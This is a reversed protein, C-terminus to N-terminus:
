TSNHFCLLIIQPGGSYRAERHGIKYLFFLIISLLLENFSIHIEVEWLPIQRLREERASM